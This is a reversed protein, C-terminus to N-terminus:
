TVDFIQASCSRFPLPHSRTHEIMQKDRVCKNKRKRGEGGVKRIKPQTCTKWAERLCIAPLDLCHESFSMLIKYCTRSYHVCPTDCEHCTALTHTHTNVTVHHSTIHERGDYFQANSDSESQCTCKEKQKTSAFATVVLITNCEWHWNPEVKQPASIETYHKPIARELSKKKKETKSFLTQLYQPTNNQAWPLSSKEGGEMWFRQIQEHMRLANM